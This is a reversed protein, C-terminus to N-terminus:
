RRASRNNTSQFWSATWRCLRRFPSLYTADVVRYNASPRRWWNKFVIARRPIKYKMAHDGFVSEQATNWCLYYLVRYQPEEDASYKAIRARFEAEQDDSRLDALLEYYRRKMMAHSRARNSLDFTLDLAALIAAGAACVEKLLAPDVKIGVVLLVKPLADTLAVAGLVIVFFMFWRHLTDLFAERCSHYAANTLLSIRLGELSTAPSPGSIASPRATPATTTGTEDTRESGAMISEDVARDGKRVNDEKRRGHTPTDPRESQV